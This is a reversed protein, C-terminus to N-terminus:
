YKVVKIMQVDTGQKIQVIYIGPSYNQGFSISNLSNTKLTEIRKGAIDTVQIYITILVTQIELRMM